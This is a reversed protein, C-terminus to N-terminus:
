KNTPTPKDAPAPKGKKEVPGGLKKERLIDGDKPTDVTEVQKNELLGQIDHKDVIVQKDDEFNRVGKLLAEANPHDPNEECAARIEGATVRFAHFKHVVLKAPDLEPQEGALRAKLNKVHDTM